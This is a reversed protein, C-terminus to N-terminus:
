INIYITNNRRTISPSAIGLPIIPYATGTAPMACWYGNFAEHGRGLGYTDSSTKIKIYPYYQVEIGLDSGNFHWTKYGGTQLNGTYGTPIFVGYSDLSIGDFYWKGDDGHLFLSAPEAASIGTNYEGIYWQYHQTFYGASTSVMFQMEMHSGMTSLIAPAAAYQRHHTWEMYGDQNMIKGSRPKGQFDTAQFYGNSMLLPYDGKRQWDSEREVGDIIKIEKAKINVFEGMAEYEEFTDELDADLSTNDIVFYYNSRSEQPGYGEHYVLGDPAMLIDMPNGRHTTEGTLGGDSIGVEGITMCGFSGKTAVLTGDNSVTFPAGSPNAAGAWFNVNDGGRAGATVVNNSDRLYLENNTLFNIAAGSALLLNTAVFDFSEGETWASSVDDWPALTGYYTSNCYYYVGDKVIVDIWKDSESYGSNLTGDCWWRTTGSYTAYDYPGRITAGPTGESRNITWNYTLEQLIIRETYINWMAKYPEINIDNINICVPIHLEGTDQSITQDVTIVITAATTGNDQVTISMGSDPLGIIDYNATDASSEIANGIWVQANSMDKFARVVTQDTNELQQLEAYNFIGSTKTLWVNFSRANSGRNEQGTVGGRDHDGSSIPVSGSMSGANNLYNSIRKNSVDNGGGQRSPYRQRGEYPIRIVRFDM